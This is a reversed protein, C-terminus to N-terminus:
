PQHRSPFFPLQSGMPRVAVNPRRRVLYRYFMHQVRDSTDFVCAVVGRRTKELPNFFMREREQKIEDAQKLFADEDTEAARARFLRLPLQRFRDARLQQPAAANRCL